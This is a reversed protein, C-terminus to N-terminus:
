IRDKELELWNFGCNLPKELYLESEFKSKSHRCFTFYTDNCERCRWNNAATKTKREAHLDGPHYSKFNQNSRIKLVKGGNTAM